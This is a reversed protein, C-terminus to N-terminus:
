RGRLRRAAALRRAFEDFVRVDEAVQIARAPADDFRRKGLATVEDELDVPLARILHTLVQGLRHLKEDQRRRAGLQLGPQALAAAVAILRDRAPEPFRGELHRVPPVEVVHDDVALKSVASASRSAIRSPRPSPWRASRGSSAARARSSSPVQILDARDGMGKAPPNALM